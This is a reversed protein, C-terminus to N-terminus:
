RGPYYRATPYSTERAEMVRILERELANCSSCGDGDHDVRNVLGQSDTWRTVTSGCSCEQEYKSM